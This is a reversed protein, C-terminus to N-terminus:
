GIEKKDVIPIKLFLHTRGMILNKGSVTAVIADELETSTNEVLLWFLFEAEQVAYWGFPIESDGDDADTVSVGRYNDMFSVAQVLVM